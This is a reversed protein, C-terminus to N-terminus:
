TRQRRSAATGGARAAWYAARRPTVGTSMSQAWEGTSDASSSRTLIRSFIGVNPSGCSTTPRPGWRRLRPAPRHVLRLELLLGTVGRALEEMRELAAGAVLLPLLEVLVEGALEGHEERAGEVAALHDRLLLALQARHGREGHEIAVVLEARVDVGREVDAGRPLLHGLDDELLHGVAAHGEHDLREVDVRLHEPLAVSSASSPCPSITAPTIRLGTVPSSYAARLPPPARSFPRRTLTELMPSM